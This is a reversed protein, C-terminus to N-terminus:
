HSDSSCDLEVHEGQEKKSSDVGHIADMVKELLSVKEKATANLQEIASIIYDAHVDSVRRRLEEQGAETKPFHLILTFPESM